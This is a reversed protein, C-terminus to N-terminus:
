AMSQSLDGAKANGPFNKRGMVTVIVLPVSSLGWDTAPLDKGSKLPCLISPPGGPGPKVHRPVCGRSVIFEQYM